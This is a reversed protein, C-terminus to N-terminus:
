QSAINSKATVEIENQSIIKPNMSADTDCGLNFQFNDDAHISMPQESKVQLLSDSDNGTDTILAMPAQLEPQLESSIVNNIPDNTNGFEPTTEPPELPDSDHSDNDNWAEFHPTENRIPKEYPVSNLLSEPSLPSVSNNTISSSHHKSGVRSGIKSVGDKSPIGLYKNNQNKDLFKIKKDSNRVNEQHEFVDFLEVQDECISRLSV